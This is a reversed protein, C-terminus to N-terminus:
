QKFNHKQELVPRLAEPYCEEKSCEIGKAARWAKSAEDVQLVQDPDPNPNPGPNPNPNPNANPSPNPELAAAGGGRAHRRRAQAGARPAPGGWRVAAAPRRWARIRGRRAQVSCPRAALDATHLHPLPGAHLLVRTARGM